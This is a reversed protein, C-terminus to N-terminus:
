TDISLLVSSSRKEDRTKKERWSSLEDETRGRGDVESMPHLMRRIVPFSNITRIREGGFRKKPDREDDCADRESSVERGKGRRQKERWDGFFGTDVGVGVELVKGEGWDIGGDGGGLDFSLLADLCLEGLGEGGRLFLGGFFEGPLAVPLLASFRFQISYM